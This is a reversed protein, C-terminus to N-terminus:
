HKIPRLPSTSGNVYMKRYQTPTMGKHLKFMRIFASQSDFGSELAVDTISMDRSSLLTQAHEIRKQSVYQYFTQGSFQKFLRSFHYKSFGAKESIEELSLNETCHDSIFDCIVIFKETYEQRKDPTADFNVVNDTYNRGILVLMSILYSYIVAESFPSDSSYEKTTSLLLSRVSSYIEPASQPTILLVPSLLSIIAEMEKIQHLISVDPQFIIRKGVPPAVLTHLNCPFIFLIDGEQLEFTHGGCDVTYISELPMIIEMAPHWHPPYNEAEDNLYLKISTDAKFNVSEFIGQLNEIM